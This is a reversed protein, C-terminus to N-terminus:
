VMKQDFLKIKGGIVSVIEKEAERLLNYESRQGNWVKRTPYIIYSCSAFGEVIRCPIYSEDKIIVKGDLRKLIINYIINKRTIMSTNDSTMFNGLSYIVPVVKGSDTVIKDYRQLSHSHSGMICDVGAGAMEKALIEQHEIVEHTYERCKFHIYCIIFEAGLKKASKIDHLLKHTSYRNIMLEQGEDTLIRKDLDKNVHETYSLFAVCIGNIDVVLVRPDNENRFLGTHLFGKKEVNDVTDIIGDVGADANHNNAQALADFGAYRIGDLYEVPANCHYRGEIKHNEHAYPVLPTVTTELNAIAFDAKSLVGKVRRFGLEFIYDNDLKMAESMRPECMLDGVCMISAENSSNGDIKKYIGNKEDRKYRVQSTNVERSYIPFVIKDAEYREYRDKPVSNKIVDEMNNILPNSRKKEIM